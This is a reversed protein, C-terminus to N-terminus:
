SSDRFSGDTRGDRKGFRSTLPDAPIATPIAVFMGGWRRDSTTSATTWSMSLGDAFASSRMFCTLPGSKGVPASIQPAEPLNCANKEDCLERRRTERM